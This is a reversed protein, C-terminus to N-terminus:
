DAIIFKIAHMEKSSSIRMFYIGMPIGRLDIQETESNAISSYVIEGLQNYVQIKRNPVVDTFSLQFKGNNPNPYFSPKSNNKNENAWTISCLEDQDIIIDDKSFIFPYISLNLAAPHSNINNMAPFYPTIIPTFSTANQCFGNLNTDTKCIQNGLLSCVINDDSTKTASFVELDRWGPLSTDGAMKQWELTGTSDFKMFATLLPYYSGPMFINNFHNVIVVLCGNDSTELVTVPFLNLGTTQIIQSWVFQDANNFYFLITPNNYISDLIPAICYHGGSSSKALFRGTGGRYNLDPFETVSYFTGLSDMSYFAPNNNIGNIGWGSFGDGDSIVTVTNIYLLSGANVNGTQSSINGNGDLFIVENPAACGTGCLVMGGNSNTPAMSYFQNGNDNSICKMWIPDCNQNVKLVFASTSNTFPQILIGVTSDSLAIAEDLVCIYPLAIRFGVSPIGKDNIKFIYIATDYNDISAFMMSGDICTVIKGEQLTASPVTYQSFFETQGPCSNKLSILLMIFAIRKM